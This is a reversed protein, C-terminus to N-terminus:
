QRGKPVPAGGGDGEEDQGWDDLYSLDRGRPEPAAVESQPRLDSPTGEGDDDEDEPQHVDEVGLTKMYEFERDGEHTPYSHMWSSFAQEEPTRDPPDSSVVPTEPEDQQFDLDGLVQGPQTPGDDDEFDDQALNGAEDFDVKRPDQDIQDTFDRDLGEGGRGKPNPEPVPEGQEEDPEGSPPESPGTDPPAPPAVPKEGPSVRNGKLDYIVRNGHEADHDHMDDIMTQDSSEGSHKEPKM